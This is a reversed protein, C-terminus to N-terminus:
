GERHATRKHAELLGVSVFPAKCVECMVLEVEQM